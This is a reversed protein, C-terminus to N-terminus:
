LNNTFLLIRIIFYIVNALLTHFFDLTQQGFTCFYVGDVLSSRAPADSFWKLVSHIAVVAAADSPYHFIGTSICPFAKFIHLFLFVVTLIYLQGTTLLWFCIWLMMTVGRWHVKTPMPPVRKHILERDLPM